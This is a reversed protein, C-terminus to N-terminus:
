LLHIETFVCACVCYKADPEVAIIVKWETWLKHKNNPHFWPNEIEQYLTVKKLLLINQKLLIKSM